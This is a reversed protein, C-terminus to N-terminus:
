FGRMNNNQAAARAVFRALRPWQQRVLVPYQTAPWQGFHERYCAIAVDDTWVVAHLSKDYYQRQSLAARLEDLFDFGHGGRVHETVDHFARALHAGPITPRPKRMPHDSSFPLGDWVLLQKHHTVDLRLEDVDKYSEEHPILALNAALECAGWNRMVAQAYQEWLKRDRINTASRGDKRAYDLQAQAYQVAVEQVFWTDTKQM